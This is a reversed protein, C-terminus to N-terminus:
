KNTLEKIKKQANDNGQEAAKRYYELAKDIDLNVNLGKEHMEGLYYYAWEDPIAEKFYAMAKKYDKQLTKKGYLYLSGIRSTAEKSGKSRAREYYYLAYSPVNWYRSGMRM